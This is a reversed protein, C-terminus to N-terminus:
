NSSSSRILGFYHAELIEKLAWVESLCIGFAFSTVIYSILGKMFYFDDLIELCVWVPSMFNALAAFLGRAPTGIVM